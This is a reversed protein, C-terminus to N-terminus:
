GITYGQGKLWLLLEELLWPLTATGTADRQGLTLQLIAGPRIHRRMRLLVAEGDKLVPGDDAVSYSIRELQQEVLAEQAFPHHIEGPARFWRLETGEPLAATLLARCHRLELRLARPSLKWYRAAADTMMSSGVAHGALALRRVLDAHHQVTHGTLIFLARGQYRSLLGLVAALEVEQLQGQFTILVERGRTPFAALVPGWWRCSPSFLSWLLVLLWPVLLLGWVAGAYWCVVAICLPQLLLLALPLRPSSM